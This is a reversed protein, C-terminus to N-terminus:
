RGVTQLSNWADPMDLGSSEYLVQPRTGCNFYMTVPQRLRVDMLRSRMLHVSKSMTHCVQQKLSMKTDWLMISGSKSGTALMQGDSFFAVRRVNAHGRFTCQESGSSGSWVTVTSNSDSSAAITQSNPSFAISSDVLVSGLIHKEQGTNVDLLRITHDAATVALTQSDPSFAPDYVYCWRDGEDDRAEYVSSKANSRADWIKVTSESLTALARSDPSFAVTSNFSKPQMTFTRTHEAAKIDWLEIWGDSDDLALLSGDPSLHLANINDRNCQFAQSEIGTDTEWVKVTRGCIAAVTEGNLSLGVTYSSGSPTQFSQLELGTKCDRVKVVGDTSLSVVKDENPQFAIAEIPELHGEFTQEELGTKSDWLKATGDASGSVINRNNSAFLLTTILKSHGELTQLNAPWQKDRNLSM